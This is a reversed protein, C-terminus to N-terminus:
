STGRLAEKARKIAPHTTASPLVDLLGLLAERLRAIEAAQADIHDAIQCHLAFDEEARLALWQQRSRLKQTDITM